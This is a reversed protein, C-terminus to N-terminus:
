AAVKTSRNWVRKRLRLGYRLDLRRLFIDALEVAALSRETGAEIDERIAPVIDRLIEKMEAVAGEAEDPLGGAVMCYNIFIRNLMREEWSYEREPEKPEPPVYRGSNPLDDREVKLESEWDDTWREGNLFTAPHPILRKNGSWAKFRTRKEVDAIVVKQTADDLKAWAKEADKKSVKRPWVEWFEDFPV